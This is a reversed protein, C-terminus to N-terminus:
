MRVGGSEIFGIVSVRAERALEFVRVITDVHAAGLSGGAFSVDQSYVFVPRGDVLGSGAVVGDGQRAKTGMFRSTVSTRITRLTGQDLLLELRDIANLKESTSDPIAEIRPPTITM